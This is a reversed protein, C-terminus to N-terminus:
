YDVSAAGLLFLVVIYVYGTYPACVSSEISADGVTANWALRYGDADYLYLRVEGGSSTKTVNADVAEVSSPTRNLLIKFMDANDGTTLTGNFSASDSDIPIAEAFTNNPEPAGHALPGLGPALLMALFLISATANQRGHQLRKGGHAARRPRADM